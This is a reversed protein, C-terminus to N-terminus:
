YMQIACNLVVSSPLAYSYVGVQTGVFPESQGLIVLPRVIADSQTGVIHMHRSFRENTMVPPYHCSEPTNPTWGRRLPTQGALLATTTTVARVADVRVAQSRM